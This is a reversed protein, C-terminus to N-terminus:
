ISFPKQKEFEPNIRGIRYYNPTQEEPMLDEIARHFARYGKLKGKSVFEGNNWVRKLTATFLGNTLGDRSFQNDMCGSILIASAKIRELADKYEPKGAINKYFEKNDFYVRTVYHRPMAKFRPEKKREEVSKSLIKKLKAAKLMTGSHCSDSFALIRVDPKFTSWLHYLEDDVIQGDYLCWTEDVLDKEDGSVDPLQGGHGSYSIMFIDGSQLGKAAKCIEEIVNKRTADKTLLTEVQFKQTTAIEAMDLADAECALLKGNWGSYHASDVSNLGITLAIGKRGNM